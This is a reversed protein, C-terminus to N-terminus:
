QAAKQGALKLEEDALCGSVFACLALCRRQEISTKMQTFDNSHASILEM